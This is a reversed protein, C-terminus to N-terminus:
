EETDNVKRLNSKYVATAVERGLRGGAEQDFRFHIGAFVRADDVDACIENFRSYTLQLNAVGANFPNSLTIDHGGEGFIRRLIEAAASSGSATRVVM